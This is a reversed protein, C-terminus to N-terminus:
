RVLFQEGSPAELFHVTKTFSNLDLQYKNMHKILDKTWLGIFGPHDDETSEPDLSYLYDGGPTLVYFKKDKKSYMLSSSTYISPPTYNVDIWTPKCSRRFLKIKSGYLKVALVWDDDELNLYSTMAINQILSHKLLPPPPCVNLSNSLTPNCPIFLRVGSTTNTSIGVVFNNYRLTM